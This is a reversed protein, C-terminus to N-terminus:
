PSSFGHNYDRCPFLSRGGFRGSLRQTGGMRGNFPYWHGKGRTFSGSRVCFWEDGGVALILFSHLIGGNGTFANMAVVLIVKVKKV